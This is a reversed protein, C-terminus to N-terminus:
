TTGGQTQSHNRVQCMLSKLSWVPTVNTARSRVQKNMWTYIVVRYMTAHVHPRETNITRHVHPMKINITTHICPKKASELM